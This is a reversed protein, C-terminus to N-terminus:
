AVNAAKAEEITELMKSLFRAGTKAWCPQAFSGETFDQRFVLESLPVLPLFVCPSLCSLSIVPRNAYLFLGEVKRSLFKRAFLAYM